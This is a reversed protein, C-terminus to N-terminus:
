PPNAKRLEPVGLPTFREYRQAFASADVAGVASIPRVGANQQVALISSVQWRWTSPDSVSADTGVETVGAAYCASGGAITLVLILSKRM